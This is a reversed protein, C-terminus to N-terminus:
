QTSSMKACFVDRFYPKAWKARGEYIQTLYPQKQLGHKAVMEAWSTEFEEESCMMDVVRHFDSRFESRKGYLAGLSEKAKKLVHWKCWRHKTNPLIEAIALEMSRVQDTLITKPHRDKGGILRMFEAFVWKFSEVKEDRMLMGGMIISQFHNNVGVFLGFPMDYLNTRYTTDFTLIDGFCIYQDMSRGSTWMLTKMM